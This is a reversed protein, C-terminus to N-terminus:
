QMHMLTPPFFEFYKHNFRLPMSFNATTIFILNTFYQMSRKIAKVAAFTNCKEHIAFFM